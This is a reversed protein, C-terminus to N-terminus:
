TRVEGKTESRAVQGILTAGEPRFVPAWKEQLPEARKWLGIRMIAGVLGGLSTLVPAPRHPRSLIAKRSATM